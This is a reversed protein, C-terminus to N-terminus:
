PDAPASASTADKDVSRDVVPLLDQGRPLALDHAQSADLASHAARDRGIVAVEFAWRGAARAMSGETLAM